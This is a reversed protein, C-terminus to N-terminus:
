NFPVSLQGWFREPSCPFLLFITGIRVQVGVGRGDLWYGIAIGVSTNRSGLGKYIDGLIIRGDSTYWM